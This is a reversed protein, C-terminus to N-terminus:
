AIAIIAEPIPDVSEDLRSSNNDRTRYPVSRSAANAAITSCSRV